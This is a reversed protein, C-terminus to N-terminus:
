SFHNGVLIQKVNIIEHCLYCIIICKIMIYVFM